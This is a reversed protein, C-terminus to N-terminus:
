VEKSIADCCNRKSVPEDNGDRGRKPSSSVVDASVQVSQWDEEALKTQKLDDSEFYFLNFIVGRWVLHMLAQNM